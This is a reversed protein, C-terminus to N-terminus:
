DKMDFTFNNVEGEKVQATFGSTSPDGYREPFPPKADAAAEYEPTGPMPQPQSANPTIAVKHQGPVAGDGEGFSSLTFKGSADTIGSAPRGSAPIFGVSADAVPAGNYTVTGTVEATPVTGPSGCGLVLVLVGLTLSAAYQRRVTTNM